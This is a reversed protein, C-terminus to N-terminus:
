TPDTILGPGLHRAVGVLVGLLHHIHEIPVDLHGDTGLGAHKALAVDHDDVASDLVRQAGLAATDEEFGERGDREVVDGVAILIQNKPGVAPTPVDLASDM